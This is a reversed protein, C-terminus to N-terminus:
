IHILSLSAGLTDGDPAIHAVVTIGKAMLLGQAMERITQNM